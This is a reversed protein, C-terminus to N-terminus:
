QSGLDVLTKTNTTTPIQVPVLFHDAVTKKEPRVSRFAPSFTPTKKFDSSPFFFDRDRCPADGSVRFPFQSPFLCTIHQNSITASLFARGSGFCLLQLVACLFQQLAEPIIHVIRDLCFPYFILRTV